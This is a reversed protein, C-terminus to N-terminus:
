KYIELIKQTCRTTVELYYQADLTSMKSSDYKDLKASFDEYRNMIDTYESLMSLVNMPDALYKKMFDVYDDVFDEYSDLFEKLDPDVGAYKPDVKRNTGSVGFFSKGEPIITWGYEIGQLVGGIICLSAVVLAAITFGKLRFRKVLCVIGAALLLSSIILTVIPPDGFFFVLVSIILLGIGFFATIGIKKTQQANEASVGNGRGNNDPLGVGTYRYAEGLNANIDNAGTAGQVAINEDNGAPAGCNGCFKTGVPLEQGCNRCFAM